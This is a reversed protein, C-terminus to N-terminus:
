RAARGGGFLTKKLHTGLDDDDQPRSGGGGRAPGDGSGAVGRPPLFHKAAETGAWRKFGEALDYEEGDLAFVLDDGEGNNSYRIAGEVKTLHGLAIRQLDGTVGLASLGQRTADQLAVDRRKARERAAKEEAEKSAKELEEVKRRLKKQEELEKALEPHLALLKERTPHEPQGPAGKARGEEEARKKAEEAERQKREQEARYEQVFTSVPEISKQVSSLRDDILKELEKRGSATLRKLEGLQEATFAQTSPAAKSPDGGQGAEPAPQGQSEQASM